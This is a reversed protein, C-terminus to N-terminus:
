ADAGYLASVTQKCDRTTYCTKGGLTRSQCDSVNIICNANSYGAKLLIDLHRIVGTNQSLCTAGAFKFGFCSLPVSLCFFLCIVSLSIKIHCKAESSRGETSCVTYCTIEAPIFKQSKAVSNVSDIEASKLEATLPWLSIIEASWFIPSILPLNQLM